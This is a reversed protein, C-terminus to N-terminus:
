KFLNTLSSSASQKSKMIKYDKAQTIRTMFSFGKNKKKVKHEKENSKLNNHGEQLQKQLHQQKNIIAGNFKQGIFGCTHCRVIVENKIYNDTDKINNRKRKKSPLSKM